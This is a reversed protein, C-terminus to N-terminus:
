RRRRPGDREASPCKERTGGATQENSDPEPGRRHPAVGPREVNAAPGVIGLAVERGPEGGVAADHEVDRQGAAAMARRKARRGRMADDEGAARAGERHHDVEVAPFGKAADVGARAAVEVAVADERRVAPVQEGALVVELGPAAHDADAVGLVAVPLDALEGGLADTRVLEHQHRVAGGKRDGVAADSRMRIVVAGYQVEVGHLGREGIEIQRAPTQPVREPQRGSQVAQADAMEGDVAVPQDGHGHLVLAAPAVPHGQHSQVVAAREPQEVRGGGGLPAHALVRAADGEIM